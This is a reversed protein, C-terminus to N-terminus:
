VKRIRFFYKKTERFRLQEWTGETTNETDRELFINRQDCTEILHNDRMCQIMLSCIHCSLIENIRIVNKQKKVSMSM